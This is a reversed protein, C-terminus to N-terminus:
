LKLKPIIQKLFNAKYKPDPMKKQLPFPLYWWWEYNINLFIKTFDESLLGKFNKFGSLNSIIEANALFHWYNTCLKTKQLQRNM